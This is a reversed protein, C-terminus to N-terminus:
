TFHQEHQLCEKSSVDEPQEHCRRRHRPHTENRILHHQPLGLGDAFADIRGCLGIASLFLVSAVHAAHWSVITNMPLSKAPFQPPLDTPSRKSFTLVVM